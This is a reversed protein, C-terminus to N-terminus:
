PCGADFLTIFAFFDLVDISGDNNLDAQLDGANFFVIFAFFDLVDVSGDGNLDVPCNPAQLVNITISGDVFVAAVPLGAQGITVNQFQTTFTRSGLPVEPTIQIRWFPTPNGTPPNGGLLPPLVSHDISGGDFNGQIVSGVLTYQISGDAPIARYAQDRGLTFVGAPETVPGPAGVSINGGGANFLDNFGMGGVNVNFKGGGYWEGASRNASLVLTISQGAQVEAPGGGEVSWEMTVTDQNGTGKSICNRTSAFGVIQSISSNGFNPLGIGGCGGLGACMIKCSGGSCHGAGYNHGIEHATLALRSNFNGTFTTQSLGFRNGTCVANLWAIGIVSGAMNRGTMLHAVDYPNGIPNGSVWVSRFQTLLSGPDNTTYPNSGSTTRIILGVSLFTINVDREYIVNLGNQIAAINNTVTTTNSQGQSSTFFHWDADWGIETELFGNRTNNGNPAPMEQAGGNAPPALDDAGCLWGDEYVSDLSNYVVYLNDPAAVDADDAPQIFWSNNMPGEFNILGKLQGNIISGAVVADPAGEIWGRYTAPAPAPIEHMGNDDAVVLKFNDARVSHPTLHVTYAQGELTVQIDFPQGPQAPVGLTQLSYGSSLHMNSQIATDFQSRVKPGAEPGRALASHGMGAALLVVLSQTMLKRM